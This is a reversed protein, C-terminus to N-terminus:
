ALGAGVVTTVLPPSVVVEAKIPPATPKIPPIASPASILSLL